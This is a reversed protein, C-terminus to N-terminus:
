AGLVTNMEDLLKPWQENTSPPIQRNSFKM